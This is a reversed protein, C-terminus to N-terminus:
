PPLAHAKPMFTHPMTMSKVDNNPMPLAHPLPPRARPMHHFMLIPCAHPLIPSAHSFTPSVEPM